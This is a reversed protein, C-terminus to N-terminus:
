RTFGAHYCFYMLPGGAGLELGPFQGALLTASSWERHVSDRTGQHCAICGADADKGVLGALVMGAPNQDLTGDPLYKVWFWNNTEPDYGEDRQFMVTVAGLHRDPDAIVDDM